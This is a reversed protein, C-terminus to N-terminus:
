RALFQILLTLLGGIVAAAIGFWAQWRASSLTARIQETTLRRQWEHEALRWQPEDPEHRYQWEALQKDDMGSLERRDFIKFEEARTAKPTLALGELIAM